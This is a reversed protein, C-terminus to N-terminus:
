KIRYEIKRRTIFRANKNEDLEILKLWNGENDFEDYQYYTKEGASSHTIEYPLSVCEILLGQENYKYTTSEILNDGDKGSSEILNDEDDFIRVMQMSGNSNDELYDITLRDKEYCYNIKIPAFYEKESEAVNYTQEWVENNGDSSILLMTMPMSDVGSENYSYYCSRSEVKRGNRDYRNKVVRRHEVSVDADAEGKEDRYYFCYHEEVLRHLSDFQYESTRMPYMMEGDIAFYVTDTVKKVDGNVKGCPLEVHYYGSSKECGSFMCILFLSVFLILPMKMIVLISSICCLYILIVSDWCNM